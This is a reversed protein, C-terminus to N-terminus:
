INIKISIFSLIKVVWSMIRRFHSLYDMILIKKTGNNYIYKLLKMNLCMIVVKGGM